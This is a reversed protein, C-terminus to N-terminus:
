EKVGYRGDRSYAPLQNPSDSDVAGLRIDALRDRVWQKGPDVNESFISFHSGNTVGSPFHWNAAIWLILEVWYADFIVRGVSPSSTPFM